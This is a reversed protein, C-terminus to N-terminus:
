MLAFGFRKMLVAGYKEFCISDMKPIWLLWNGSPHSSMEDMEEIQFQTGIIEADAAEFSSRFTEPYQSSGMHVTQRFCAVSHVLLIVM